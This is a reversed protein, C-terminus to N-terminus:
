LMHSHQSTEGNENKCACLSVCPHLPVPIVCTCTSLCLCDADQWCALWDPFLLFCFGFLILACTQVKHWTHQQPRWRKTGLFPLCINWTKCEPDTIIANIAITVHLQWHLTSTSQSISMYSYISITAWNQNLIATIACDSGKGLTVYLHVEHQDALHSMVCTIKLETEEWFVVKRLTKTHKRPQSRVEFSHSSAM